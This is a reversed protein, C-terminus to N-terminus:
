RDILGAPVLSVRTHCRWQSPISCRGYASRSFAHNPPPALIEDSTANVSCASTLVSAPFATTTKLVPLLNAFMASVRWPPISAHMASPAMAEDPPVAEYELQPGGYSLSRTGLPPFKYAATFRRAEEACQVHPFIVGQAGADLIRAARNV